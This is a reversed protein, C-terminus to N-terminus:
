FVASVRMNQCCRRRRVPVRQPHHERVGKRAPGHDPHLRPGRARQRVESVLGHSREPRQVLEALRSVPISAPGARRAQARHARFGMPRPPGRRGHIGRDRSQRLSASPTRDKQWQLCGDIAWRVIAPGELALKEKLHQDREAEPIFVTFPVLHLRAKIAVDVNKLSPKHNGFIVLKLLPDFEFFDQRMFRGKLRDGGTMKKIKAEAWFQGEEIESGVALRIGHLEAIDTPHREYDCAMLTETAISCAHPGLLKMLTEVFTSKGNRGKGYLFFLIHEVTLGTLWYGASRQLYAILDADGATVRGLFKMWLPAMTGKPAPSVATAKTLHDRPDAPRMEGTKLDVTGGPTALLM